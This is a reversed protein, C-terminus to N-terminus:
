ESDFTFFNEVCLFVHFIRSVKIYKCTIAQKRTATTRIFFMYTVFLGLFYFVWVSFKVLAFSSDIIDFKVLFLKKRFNTLLHLLSRKPNVHLSAFRVHGINM